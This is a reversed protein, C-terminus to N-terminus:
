SCFTVCGLLLYAEYLSILFASVLSLVFALSLYMPVKTIQRSSCIAAFEVPWELAAVMTYASSGLTKCILARTILSTYVHGASCFNLPVVRLFTHHTGYPWLFSLALFFHGGTAHMLQVCGSSFLFKIKFWGTCVSIESLSRFTSQILWHFEGKSKAMLVKRKLIVRWM